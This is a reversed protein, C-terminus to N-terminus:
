SNKLTVPKTMGLDFASLMTKVYGVANKSMYTHQEIGQVLIAQIDDTNVGYNACYGGLLMSLNRLNIHHPETINQVSVIAFKAVRNTWYTKITGKASSRYQIPQTTPRPTDIVVAEGKFTTADERVLINPDHSLFVPLVANKTAPDLKINMEGEVMEAFAMYRRKFENTDTCIPISVFARVGRKSSSLWTSLDKLM